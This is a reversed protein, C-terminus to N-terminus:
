KLNEQLVPIARMMFRRWSEPKDNCDRHRLKDLAEYEALSMGIFYQDYRGGRNSAM